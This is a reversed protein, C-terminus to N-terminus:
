RSYYFDEDPIKGGISDPNAKYLQDYLLSLVNKVTSGELFRINCNPIATEAIEASKIIGYKEALQATEPVNNNTFEISNKYDDLFYEVALANNNLFEDTVVLCGTYLKTYGTAISWEHGLDLAIRVNPNKLMVSGAFPEPCMSITIEGAAMLAALEAHDTKYVVNCDTIGNNALIIDLAYQPTAGQGTAYITKGSLDSITNISNGNELIYLNAGTNLAAVKIGGETKNYLNAALNTPIAAMDLEGNVLKAVIEDPSNGMTFNYAELSTNNDNDDMLKALGIGTPGNLAGINITIREEPKSPKTNQELTDNDDFVIEYDGSQMDNDTDNNSCGTLGITFLFLLTFLFLNRKFM